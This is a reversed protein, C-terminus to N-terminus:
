PRHRWRRCRATPTRASRSRSGRPRASASGGPEGRPPQARAAGPAPVGPLPRGGPDGGARCRVQGRLGRGHVPLDGARARPRAGDRLGPRVARRLDGPDLGLGDARRRALRRRRLADGAPQPAPRAGPVRGRDQGTRGGPGCRPRRARDRVARRPHEAARVGRGHRHRLRAARLGAGAGGAGARRGRRQRRRRRRGGSGRLAARRRAAAVGRATAARGAGAGGPRRAGGPSRRPRALRGPRQCPPQSARAGGAHGPAARGGHLRRRRQRPSAGTLRTAPQGVPGTPEDTEYEPTQDDEVLTWREEVRGEVVAETRVLRPM